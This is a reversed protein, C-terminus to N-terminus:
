LFKDPFNSIDSCQISIEPYFLEGLSGPLRNIIAKNLENIDSISSYSTHTIKFGFDKLLIEIYNLSHYAGTYAIANTIYIKDLFRRLFFLDMFRTFIKGAKDKLRSIDNYINTIMERIIEIPLDYEYYNLIDRKIKKGSSSQVTNMIKNYNKTLNNCDILLSNLYEILLDRQILITSQVDKNQYVNFIKNLFYQLDNNNKQNKQQRTLNNNNTGITTQKSFDLKNNEINTLINIINKCYTKFEAVIGLISKMDSINIHQDNWMNSAYYEADALRDQFNIQTYDRIDMYHLRINKMKNSIYVLDKNPDYNFIKRFLKVVERIYIDRSYNNSRYKEGYNQDRLWTPKIELFFDYIKDSETLNGFNEALYLQIDRSYINECETQRSIGYHFDLFIYIVKQIGNIEGEMRVVNIPGSVQKINKNLFNM